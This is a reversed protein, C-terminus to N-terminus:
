GTVTPRRLSPCCVPAGLRPQRTRARHTVDRVFMLSTHIALRYTLLHFCLFRSVLRLFAEEGRIAAGEACSSHIFEARFLSHMGHLSLWVYPAYVM